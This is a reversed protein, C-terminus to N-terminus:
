KMCCMMNKVKTLAAFGDVMPGVMSKLMIEFETDEEGKDIKEILHYLIDIVLKKKDKGPMSKIAAAQSMLISLIGPIDEKTLGDKVYRNEIENVAQIISKEQKSPIIFQKIIAEM